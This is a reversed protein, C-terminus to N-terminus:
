APSNEPDGETLYDWMRERIRGAWTVRNKVDDDSFIGVDPMGAALFDLEIRSADEAYWNLVVAEEISTGATVLGNGRMFIAGAGGLTAALREALEDSRLLKPDDWLPPQPAFYAGFGYRAKPTLRMAGLTMAKPPTSRVVGHVDPRLRYIERHIRVEGLVGEPLPGSLSVVSCPEGSGVMGLPKSPSVLFTDEDLRASCHGYAHVLGSKALARGAIRVRRALDDASM